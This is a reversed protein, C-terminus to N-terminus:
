PVEVSAETPFRQPPWSRIQAAAGNSPHSNLLYLTQIEVQSGSDMTLEKRTKEQDILVLLEKFNDLVAM